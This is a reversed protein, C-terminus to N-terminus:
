ENNILEWRHGCATKIKGSCCMSILSVDVNYYKAASSISDFVVGTDLNMVKKRKKAYNEQHKCNRCGTGHNVHSVSTQWEYGCKHCKWWVRKGSSPTVNEPKLPYNKEYNWDKSAGPNLNLFSNKTELLNNNKTEIRQKAACVNCGSGNIRSRLTTQWEHGCTKCKWWIKKGYKRTIQNPSIGKNKEYDWEECLEPYLTLIDNYGELVKNDECYPCKNRHQTRAIVSARWEHGENCKWWVVKNSGTSIEDPIINDNNTPHWESSIEPYQSMLDNEGLVVRNKM